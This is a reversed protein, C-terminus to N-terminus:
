IRKKEFKGNAPTSEINFFGDEGPLGLRDLYSKFGMRRRGFLLTALHTAAEMTAGVPLVTSHRPRQTSPKQLVQPAFFYPYIAPFEFMWM